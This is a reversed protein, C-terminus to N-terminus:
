ESYTVRVHPAFATAAAPTVQRCHGVSVQSLHPLAALLMVGADTIEACGHVDVNELSTMTALM